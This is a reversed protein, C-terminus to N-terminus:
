NSSVLQWCCSFAEEIDEDRSDEAKFGRTVSMVRVRSFPYPPAQKGGALFSADPALRAPYSENTEPSAGNAGLLPNVCREAAPYNTNREPREERSSHVICIDQRM